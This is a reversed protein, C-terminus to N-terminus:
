KDNMFYEWVSDSQQYLWNIMVNRGVCDGDPVCVDCNCVYPYNRSIIVRLIIDVSWKSVEDSSSIDVARQEFCFFLLTSLSHTITLM